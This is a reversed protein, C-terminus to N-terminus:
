MQEVTEIGLLDLGRALTRAALACIVLRSNQVAPQDANLVPCAEYFSMFNQALEYLYGCLVNAQYDDTVQEVAEFFQLLKVALVREQDAAISVAPALSGPSIGARRFMSRIRSYAYQLYPATNGEFSLMADWDFIYDTMRNKSLEAYKVAGVGVVRAIEQRTEEPLDPNKNGVVTFARAISESLVDILKVEAGDRTKFPKGDGKLVSGFAIHRFEQTTIYGASTGVAFLQKLHLTQPAGVVYLAKDVDLEGARYRVAALDTALYPYGGDSKQVIAPLPKGGKGTFGDLFVCKAGDSVTVLAQQELDGIVVPLDDNYASEARIDSPKLTINFLQYVNESHRISEEIFQRWLVLCSEDGGQLRVVFSRARTAFEPDNRFRASAQQYFQELDKLSTSRESAPMEDMHALLSGFQAGWDGVHNVRIVDNGLYELIRVIADGIVTPRLHGVHMEKALNPSSYDVAIRSTVIGDPTPDDRFLVALQAALYDDTLRLNIFGPGAIEPPEIHEVDLHGVVAAAVERPNKGARKAAAMIGNAQYHGFEPRAAQKVVAPTDPFGSAELAASVALDLTRRINM